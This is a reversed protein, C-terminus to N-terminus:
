HRKLWFGIRKQWSTHLHLDAEDILVVGEHLVRLYSGKDDKAEGVQLDGFCQHLNRIMDMMLAATTRYGDSLEVLPLRVGQQIVWLAESDIKEVRAGDPLLGDNLLALVSNELKLWPQGKELRRLYIERLW